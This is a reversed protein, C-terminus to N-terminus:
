CGPEEPRVRRSPPRDRLGDLADVVLDVVQYALQRV